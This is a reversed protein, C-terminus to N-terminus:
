WVIIERFRLGTLRQINGLTRKPIEDNLHGAVTIVYPIGEHHFQRHDGNMNPNMVWGYLQLAKIVERVTFVKKIKKNKMKQPTLM